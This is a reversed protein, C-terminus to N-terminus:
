VDLSTQAQLNTWHWLSPSALAAPAAVRTGSPPTYGGAPPMWVQSCSSMPKHWKSRLAPVGGLKWQNLKRVNSISTTERLNYFTNRFHEDNTYWRWSKEGDDGGIMIMTTLTMMMSKIHVVLLELLKDMTVWKIKCCSQSTPRIMMGMKCIRFSVCLYNVYTM